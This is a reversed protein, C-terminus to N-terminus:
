YFRRRDRQWIKVLIFGFLAGGLHAFHAVGPETNTLGAYLEFAAYLLVFYKAKMPIPFFLLAIETNGFLMGFAALLGFIAGSAGVAPVDTYGQYLLMAIQQVADADPIQQKSINVAADRTAETAWPHANILDNLAADTPHNVVVMVAQHLQHLEIANVLSFLLGGGIGCVFYFLLFRRPGWFNELLVGFMWLAYMNAAIHMISGHMFMHTVFQFPYFLSSTFYHLGLKDELSMMHQQQLIYSAVYVIVNILILNLVVPPMRNFQSSRYQM